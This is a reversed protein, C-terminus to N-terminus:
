EKWSASYANSIQKEELTKLNLLYIRSVWTNMKGKKGERQFLIYNGEKSFKPDTYIGDKIVEIRRTKLNIKQLSPAEEFNIFGPLYRFVVYKGKPDIRPQYYGSGLKPDFKGNYGVLLTTDSNDVLYISGRLSFVSKNGITHSSFFRHKSNNYILGKYSSTSRKHIFTSDEINIIEGQPSFKTIKMNVSVDEKEYAVKNSIWCEGSILDVSYYEKYYSQRRSFEGTKISNLTGKIGFTLTDNKLTYPEELFVKNKANFILEEEALEPRYLYLGDKDKFLFISQTLKRAITNSCSLVIPIIIVWIYNGIERM